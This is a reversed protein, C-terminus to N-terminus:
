SDLFGQALLHTAKKHTLGRSQLYFLQEDDLHGITAAHSCKVENAEIELNPIATARANKSLLLVREELFSNTNQAGSRVIITGNINAVGRGEVVAKLSVHAQTNKAIHILTLELDLKETPKLYFRGIVTLESGEQDLTYLYNGSQTLTITKM